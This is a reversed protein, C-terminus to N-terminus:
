EGVLNLRCVIANEWGIFSIADLIKVSGHLGFHCLDLKDPDVAILDDLSVLRNDGYGLKKDVRLFHWALIEKPEM